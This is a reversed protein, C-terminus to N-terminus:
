ILSCIDCKGCAAADKGGFYEYILKMRCDENQKAWRLMTLLKENQSKLHSQHFDKSFFSEDWFDLAQFYSGKNEISGARELQNLSTEVRFDRSNYFNLEKRLFDNGGSRYEDFRDRILQYVKKVFSPEPCSWKIFDMSISTDEEDFLLHGEASLGDRGARGVEQYYAELSTPMEGHIVARIDSKDIGLGFAPTAFLTDLGSYFSDQSRKRDQPTMQGHYKGAKLGQTRFSALAKELTGILSWYVIIPGKVKQRISIITEIKNELSFLDHVYLALEPREMGGWFTRAHEINLQKKIDEQVRATATATLAVTPPNGLKKRIDGMKSYDPRFDHGWLSICHAEDIALLSVPSSSSELSAGGKYIIDTFDAKRFREPTVYLLHIQAESNSISNQNLEQLVQDREQKSLGSHISRAKIGRKQAQRVQDEMLAILPSIVLVLGRGIEQYYAAPLQYCLSKGSGTPMIVLAEEGDLLRLIIDKQDGRFQDFGFYKKLLENLTKQDWKLDKFKM